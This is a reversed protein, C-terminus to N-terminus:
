FSRSIALADQYTLSISTLEDTHEVRSMWMQITADLDRELIAAVREKNRAIHASPNSLKEQIIITIEGLGIPKVLIQDAQLLIATM